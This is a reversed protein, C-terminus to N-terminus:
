ARPAKDEPRIFGNILTLPVRVIAKPYVAQMYDRLEQETRVINVVTIGDITWSYDVGYSLVVENQGLARFVKDPFDEARLTERSPMNSDYAVAPSEASYKSSRALGTVYDRLATRSSTAYSPLNLYIGGGGQRLAGYAGRESASGGGQGDPAFHPRPLDPTLSM